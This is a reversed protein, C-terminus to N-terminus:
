ESYNYINEFSDSVKVFAELVRPDFHEPLTRGDGNILIECATRHDLAPKYPRRSRLADYQDAMTAIRGEMPIAEGKLALPYGSGNWREHHTLAITSAMSLKSHDGIIKHGFAPHRKMTEIEEPNLAGPKRLIDPPVHVKGVDHLRAHVKIASAFEDPQGLERALAECYLGVRIIHNGTDEDNAESARALANVTYEFAGEVESVQRAISRMFMLEMVLANLVSTDHTTVDRGYNMAFVCLDPSFNCIMNMPFVGYSRLHEMIFREEPSGKEDMCSHASAARTEAIAALEPMDVNNVAPPLQPRYLRVQWSSGGTRVYISIVGPKHVQAESAALLWLAFEDISRTFDFAGPDFRGIFDKGFQTISSLNFYARSLRADMSRMKLLMRVRAIVEDRSLPKSIFDDAGAEIGSIRDEKSSLTTLIVVPLHRLREDDRIRRCVEYGDMLPMMVDLLVLDIQMAALKDLAEQGNAAREVEYGNPKLIAELLRLNIPEDDVILVRASQREVSM